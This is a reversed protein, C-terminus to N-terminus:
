QQGILEGYGHDRHQVGVPRLTEDALVGNADVDVTIGSDEGSGLPLKELPHAVAQLRVESEVQVVLSRARRPIVSEQHGDRQQRRSGVLLSGPPGHTEPCPLHRRGDGSGQLGLDGSAHRSVVIGVGRPGESIPHLM